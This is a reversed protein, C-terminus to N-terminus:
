QAHLGDSLSNFFLEKVDKRRELVQYVRKKARYLVRDFHASSINLDRRIVSKDEDQLYYRKLIEKDRAVTLLGLIEHLRLRLTDADKDREATNGWAAPMPFGDEDFKTYRKEKRFHSIAVNGATHRLFSVLSRPNVIEGARMKLLTILLAQQCCDKAVDLDQTIGFISLLLGHSYIEAFEAEASSSGAHIRKALEVTNEVAQLM